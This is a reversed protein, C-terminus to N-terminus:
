RSNQPGVSNLDYSSSATIASDPIIGSHMGLGDRCQASILSYSFSVTLLINHTVSNEEHKKEDHIILKLLFEITQNQQTLQKSSLSKIHKLM